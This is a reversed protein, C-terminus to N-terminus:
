FMKYDDPYMPDYLYDDGDYCSPDLTIQAMAIDDENGLDDCDHFDKVRQFYDPDIGIRELREPHQKNYERYYGPKHRDARGKYYGPIHRDGSPTTGNAKQKAWREAWYGPRHRDVEVIIKEISEKVIRHLDSETLKIIKKM